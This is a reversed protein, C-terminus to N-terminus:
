QIAKIFQTLYDRKIKLKRSESLSYSEIIEENYQSRLKKYGRRFIRQQNPYNLHKKVAKLFVELIKDKKSQILIQYWNSFIEISIEQSSEHDFFHGNPFFEQYTEEFDTILVTNVLLEIHTKIENFTTNFLSESFKNSDDAEVESKKTELHFYFFIILRYKKEISSSDKLEFSNNLIASIEAFLKFFNTQDKEFLALLSFFADLKVSENNLLLWKEYWPLVKKGSKFHVQILVELISGYKYYQDLTDSLILDVLQKGNERKEIEVMFDSFRQIMLRRENSCRMWNQNCEELLNLTESRLKRLERITKETNFDTPLEIGGGILFKQISLENALHVLKPNNLQVNKISKFLEYSAEKEKLRLLKNLTVKLARATKSLEDKSKELKKREESKSEIEDLLEFPIEYNYYQGFQQGFDTLFSNIKHITSRRFDNYYFCTPSAIFKAMRDLFFRKNKILIKKCIKVDSDENFDVTRLNTQTRNDILAKKLIKDANKHWERILKEANSKNKTENILLFLFKEFEDFELGRFFTAIFLVIPYIETKDIIKDFQTKNSKSSLVAEDFNDKEFLVKLRGLLEKENIPLRKETQYTKIKKLLDIKGTSSLFSKLAYVHHYSFEIKNTYNSNAFYAIKCHCERLTSDYQSVSEVGKKELDSLLSQEGSIEYKSGNKVFLLLKKDRKIHGKKLDEVLLSIESKDYDNFLLQQVEFGNKEYTTFLENSIIHIISSDACTIVSLEANDLLNKCQDIQQDLEYKDANEINIKRYPTPLGQRELQSSENITINGKQNGLQFITKASIKNNNEIVNSDEEFYEENNVNTEVEENLEKLDDNQNEM